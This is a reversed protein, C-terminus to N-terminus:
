ETASIAALRTDEQDVFADLATRAAPPVGVRSAVLANIRRMTVPRTPVLAVSPPRLGTLALEPILSVGAGAGVLALISRYDGCTAVVRPAFGATACV